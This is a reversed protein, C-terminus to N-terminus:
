ILPVKSARFDGDKHFYHNKDKLLVEIREAGALLIAEADEDINAQLDLIATPKHAEAAQKAVKLTEKQLFCRLPNHKLEKQSFLLPRIMDFDEFELGQFLDPYNEYARYPTWNKWVQHDYIAVQIKESVHLALHKLAYFLGRHKTAKGPCIGALSSIM